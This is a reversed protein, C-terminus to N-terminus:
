MPLRCRPTSPYMRAHDSRPRSGHPHASGASRGPITSALGVWGLGSNHWNTCFAPPADDTSLQPAVDGACSSSRFQLVVARKWWRTHACECTKPPDIDYTGAAPITVTQSSFACLAYGPKIYYLSKPDGDTIYVGVTLTCEAAFSMVIHVLTVQFGLPCQECQVRPDFRLGYASPTAFVNYM